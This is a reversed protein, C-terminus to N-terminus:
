TAQPGPLTPASCTLMRQRARCVCVPCVWGGAGGWVDVVRHFGWWAEANRPACRSSTWTACACARVCACGGVVLTNALALTPRAVSRRRRQEELARRRAEAGLAGSVALEWENLNRRKEYALGVKAKGWLKMADATHAFGVLPPPPKKKGQRPPKPPAEPNPRLNPRPPPKPRNPRRLGLLKLDNRDLLQSEQGAMYVTPLSPLHQVRAREVLSEAGGASLSRMGSVNLPTLDSAGGRKRKPIPPHPRPFPGRSSEPLGNLTIQSPKLARARDASREGLYGRLLM